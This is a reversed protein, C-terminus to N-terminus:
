KEQLLVSATKTWLSKKSNLEKSLLSYIDKRLRKLVIKYENVEDLM